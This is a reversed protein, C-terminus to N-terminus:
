SICCANPNEDSFLQPPPPPREIVHVPMWPVMRKGYDDEYYNYNYGHNHGYGGYSNYNNLYMMRKMMMVEEPGSFQMTAQNEAEEGEKKEEKKEAGAAEPEAPAPQKEDEKKEANDEKKEADAPPKEEEPKKEGDDKKEEPPPPPPPPPIVKAIKGTRRYIYEVLKDGTMTGTVTAKGSSLDTEAAQM